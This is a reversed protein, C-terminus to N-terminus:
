QLLSSTGEAGIRTRQDNLPATALVPRKSLAKPPMPMKELVFAAKGSNVENAPAERGACKFPSFAVISSSTSRKTLLTIAAPPRPLSSSVTALINLAGPLYQLETM